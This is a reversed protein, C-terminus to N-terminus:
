VRQPAVRLLKNLIKFYEIETGIFPNYGKRITKRKKEEFLYCLYSVYELNKKSDKTQKRLKSKQIGSFKEITNQLTKSM